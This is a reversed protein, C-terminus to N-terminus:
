LFSGGVRGGDLLNTPSAVVYLNKQGHSPWIKLYRIGGTAWIGSVVQRGSAFWQAANYRRMVLVGHAVLGGVRPLM